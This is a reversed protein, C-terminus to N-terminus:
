FGLSCAWPSFLVLYGSFVEELNTEKLTITSYFWPAMSISETNYFFSTIEFINKFATQQGPGIQPSCPENWSLHWLPHFTCKQQTPTIMNGADLCWISPIHRQSKYYVLRVPSHLMLRLIKCSASLLKLVKGTCKAQMAFMQGEGLGPVVPSILILVSKETLCNGHHKWLFSVIYHHCKINSNCYEIVDHFMYLILVMFDDLMDSIYSNM